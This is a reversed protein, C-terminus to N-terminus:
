VSGGFDALVKFFRVMSDDDIEASSGSSESLYKTLSQEWDALLSMDALPLIFTLTDGTSLNLSFSVSGSSTRRKEAPQKQNLAKTTLNQLFVFGLGEADSPTYPATKDQTVFTAKCFVLLDTFLTCYATIVQASNSSEVHGKGSLEIRLKFKHCLIPVKGEFNM